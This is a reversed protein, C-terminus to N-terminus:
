PHERKDTSSSATASTPIQITTHTTTSGSGRKDLMSTTTSTTTTGDSRRVTRHTVDCHTDSDIAAYPAFKPIQASIAKHTANMANLNTCLGSAAAQIKDSQTELQKEAAASNGHFISHILNGVVNKGLKAGAVGVQEGARITAGAQQYYQQLLARQAPTVAITRDGIALSGDTGVHADPKGFAHVVMGTRDFTIRHSFGGNISPSCAALTATLLLAALLALSRNM